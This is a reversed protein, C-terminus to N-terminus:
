ETMPRLVSTVRTKRSFMNRLCLINRSFFDSKQKNTVKSLLAEQMKAEAMLKLSARQTQKLSAREKITTHAQRLYDNGVGGKV